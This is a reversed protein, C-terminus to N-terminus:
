KKHLEKRQTKLQDTTLSKTKLSQMENRENDRISKLQAQQDSTLNLQKTMMEHRNRHHQSSTDQKTQAQAAGAFLVLALAGTLIRKM